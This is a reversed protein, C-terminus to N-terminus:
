GPRKRFPLVNSPLPPLPPLEPLERPPADESVLEDVGPLKCDTYLVLYPTRPVRKFGLREFHARLKDTARAQSGKLLDVRYRQEQPPCYWYQAPVAEIMALGNTGQRYRHLLTKLAALGYGYGRFHADMLLYDVVLLNPAWHEFQGWVARQVAPKWQDGDYLAEYYTMTEQHSDFVEFISESESVAGCADIVTVSFRGIDEAPPDGHLPSLRRLEITGTTTFIFRSPEEDDVDIEEPDTRLTVRVYDIADELASDPM